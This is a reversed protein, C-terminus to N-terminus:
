GTAYTNTQVSNDGNAVWTVINTETMSEGFGVALYSKNKVEVYFTVKADDENIFM